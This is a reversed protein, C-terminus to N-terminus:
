RMLPFRRRQPVSNSAGLFGSIGVRISRSALVRATMLIKLSYFARM